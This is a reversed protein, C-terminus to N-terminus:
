TTLFPGPGESRPQPSFPRPRTAVRPPHRPEILQALVQEQRWFVMLTEPETARQTLTSVPEQLSFHVALLAVWIAALGAWAWRSPWILEHWLLAPWNRAPTKVAAPASFQRALVRQSVAELKPEVAQHQALLLDRPTKM